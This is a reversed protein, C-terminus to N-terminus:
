KEEENLYIKGTKLNGKVITEGSTIIMNIDKRTIQNVFYLPKVIALIEKTEENYIIIKRQALVIIIGVLIWCLLILFLTSTDM